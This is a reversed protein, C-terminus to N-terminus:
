GAWWVKLSHILFCIDSLPSSVNENQYDSRYSYPPYVCNHLNYPILSILRGCWGDTPRGINYWSIISFLSQNFNISSYITLHTICLKNRINNKCNLTLLVKLQFFIPSYFICFNLLKITGILIWVIGQRLCCMASVPKWTNCVMFCSFITSLVPQRTIVGGEM